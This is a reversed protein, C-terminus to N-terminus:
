RKSINHTIIDICIQRGIRQTFSEGMGSETLVEGSRTNGLKVQHKATRASIVFNRTQFFIGGGQFEDIKSEKGM